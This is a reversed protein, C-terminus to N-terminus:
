FSLVHDSAAILARAEEDNLAEVKICYHNPTLGRADASPTHIYCEDIDYMSLAQLMKAQNKQKNPNQQDLLQFTGDGIFLISVPQDFIAASLLADLGEQALPSDYPASGFLFILRKRSM